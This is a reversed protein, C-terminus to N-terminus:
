RRIEAEECCVWHVAGSFYNIQFHTKCYCWSSKDPGHGQNTQGHHWLHLLFLSHSHLSFVWLFVPPAWKPSLTAEFWGIIDTLSCGLPSFDTMLDTCVNRMPKWLLSVPVYAPLNQRINNSSFRIGKNFPSHAGLCLAISKDFPFFDKKNQISNKWLNNYTYNEPLQM